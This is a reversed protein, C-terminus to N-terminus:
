EILIRGADRRVPRDLIRALGEVVVALENAVTGSIVQRRVAPDAVQVEVGYTHEIRAAIEAVPTADFVLTGSTWSSYVAPNVRRREVASRSASFTVLDGPALMLVTDRGASEPSSASASTRAEVAVRGENLVVRTQGDRRAVSFQTGLVRVTGDPTRVRFAPDSAAPQPAVAFYAEGQLRVTREQAYAAPVYRLTSRANVTIRTGDPLDVQAQEGAATAVVQTGPRTGIVGREASWWVGGAVVLLLVLAVFAHRVRRASRRPPRRTSRQTRSRPSTSSASQSTGEAGKPPRNWPPLQARLRRWAQEEAEADPVAQRLPAYRLLRAAERVADQHTPRAATWQRWAEAEDPAETGLVWRRFSVDALLQQTLSAADM